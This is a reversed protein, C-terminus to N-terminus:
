HYGLFSLTPLLSPPQKSFLSIIMGQQLQQGRGGPGAGAGGGRSPGQGQGPLGANPNVPFRSVVLDNFRKQFTNKWKSFYSFVDKQLESMSPVTAKVSDADIPAIIFTRAKPGNDDDADEGVETQAPAPSPAPLPKSNPKSDAGTEGSTQGPAAQAEEGQKQVSKSPKCFGYVKIGYEPFRDDDDGNNDDDNRANDINDAAAIAAEMAPGYNWVKVRNVQAVALHLHDFPRTSQLALKEMISDVLTTLDARHATTLIVSIDAERKPVVRQRNSPMNSDPDNSNIDTEDGENASIPDPDTDYIPAEFPPNSPSPNPPPLDGGGKKKKSAKSRKKSASAPSALNEMKTALRTSNM